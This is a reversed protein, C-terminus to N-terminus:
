PRALKKLEFLRELAERPSLDNPDLQDLTDLLTQTDDSIAAQSTQFLNLQPTHESQQTSLATQELTHLHTKAERVVQNPLGALAAVQLGYSRSAAGPKVSHLFVLEDGHEIADLHVNAICPFQEALDTLEAFHTAFLTLSQNHNALHTASARALAMGDYTSTGRGVEDILVLSQASAQHLIAAMETMEVMFTSQGRSLDDGAGIRTMIRDVPGITAADAPVFSGIYALLVILATQRMYTSKGGMNPGTILLLRHEPHLVTDNPQFPHDHIQEVVPHRGATIHIGIDDSLTPQCWNLTVAREALTALVDLSAIAEAIRRFMPVADALQAILQSFLTQELALARDKASLMETEFVKLEETIYREANALTQKRTYHEPIKDGHVKGCELYYGHVRNFGIKLTAIGTQERERLEMDAMLQSADRQMVRLRDLEEHHGDAIVGGDRVHVAPTEAVASQLLALVADDSHLDHRLADIVPSDLANIPERINPLEALADRLSSLDRPRASGLAIRTAIRDLDPYRNLASQADDFRQSEILSQVAHQRQRILQTDRLPRNLWHRLARAGMASATTDLLALLSHDSGGSADRELELQRRTQADLSLADDPSQWAVSTIHPISQKQTDEVYGLLVSIAAIALPKDEISFGRLDKVNFFRTLHNRASEVDFLWPQRRTVAVGTASLPAPLDDDALLLEAPQIRTLEGHMASESQWECVCLRGSSLDLWALGFQAKDGLALCALPRETRADLLAEDTLTGPTVVRVVKREVLGKSAAPDSVQECIAVAEGMGVLKALYGEMAHVPVGAMPIPQGGSKGRKTLTIDLLRAAKKADDYFLEYFDGMRFFLLTDPYDAKAAHFQQM